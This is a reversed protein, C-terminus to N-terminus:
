ARSIRTKRNSARTRSAWSVPIISRIAMTKIPLRLKIRNSRTSPLSVASYRILCLFHVAAQRENKTNAGHKLIKGNTARAIQGGNRRSSGITCRHAGSGFSGGRTMRLSAFRLRLIRGGGDGETCAFSEQQGGGAASVRVPKAVRM